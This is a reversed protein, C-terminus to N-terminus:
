KNSENESYLDILMGQENRSKISILESLMKLDENLVLWVVDPAPDMLMKTYDIEMNNEKPLFEEKEIKILEKMLKQREVMLEKINKNEYDEKFKPIIM